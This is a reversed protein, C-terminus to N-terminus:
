EWHESSNMTRLISQSEGTLNFPFGEAEGKTLGSYNKILCKKM